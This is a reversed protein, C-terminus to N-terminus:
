ETINGKFVPYSVSKEKIVIAQSGMQKWAKEFPEKKVKQNKLGYPNNVYIHKKDFGTLVVSHLSYTVDIEGSPTEWTKFNDVPKYNVTTIVWIPLGQSLYQYLTSISKGTLDIAQDGVYKEALNYIPGHYVGLGPGNQIDGVFGENPNGRLGNKYTLPVRDIKKALENKTTKYGNYKLIMALSTVECGNYLRPHDMQKILSVDLPEGSRLPIEESLSQHSELATTSQAISSTIFPEKENLSNVITANTKSILASKTTEDCTFLLFPIFLLMLSIRNIGVM